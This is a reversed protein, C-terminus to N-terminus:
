AWFDEPYGTYRQGARTLKQNSLMRWVYVFLLMHYYWIFYQCGYDGNSWHFTIIYYYYGGYINEGYREWYIIYRIILPNILGYDQVFDLLITFIHPLELRMVLFTPNGLDMSRVKTFIKNGHNTGTGDSGSLSKSIWPIENSSNKTDSIGELVCNEVMWVSKVDCNCGIVHIPKYFFVWVGWDFFNFPPAM